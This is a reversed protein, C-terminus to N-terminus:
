THLRLNINHPITGSETPMYQETNKAKLTSRGSQVAEMTAVIM